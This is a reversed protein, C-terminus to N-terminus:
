GGGGYMYGVYGVVVCLTVSNDLKKVKESPEVIACPVGFACLDAFDLKIGYVEEYSM